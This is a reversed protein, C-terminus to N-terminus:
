VGANARRPNKQPGNVWAFEGFIERAATDYAAGAEEKTGYYGLSKRGTLTTIRARYRRGVQIVGRVGVAGWREKNSSNQYTTAIRLNERRNDLGNGNKHDVVFGPPPQAIRRHLYGLKQNRAYM